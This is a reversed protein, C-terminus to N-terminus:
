TKCPWWPPFSLQVQYPLWIMGSLAISSINKNTEFTTDSHRAEIRRFEGLRILISRSPAFRRAGATTAARSAPIMKIRRKKSKKLHFLHQDLDNWDQRLPLHLQTLRADASGVEPPLYVMDGVQLRIMIWWYWSGDGSSGAMDQGLHAIWRNSDMRASGRWKSFMGMLSRPGPSPPIYTDYGSYLDDFCNKFIPNM